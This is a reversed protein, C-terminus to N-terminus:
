IVLTILHPFFGRFVSEKTERNQKNWPGLPTWRGISGRWTEELSTVSTRGRLCVAPQFLHGLADPRLLGWAGSDGQLWNELRRRGRGDGLRRRRESPVHAEGRLRHWHTHDWGQLRGEDRGLGIRHGIPHGIWGRIHRHHADSGGLHHGVHKASCAVRLGSM